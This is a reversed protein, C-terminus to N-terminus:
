KSARSPKRPAPKKAPAPKRIPARKKARGPPAANRAPKAPAKKAAAKTPKPKAKASAAAPKTPKRAVARGPGAAAKRATTPRAGAARGKSAARKTMKDIYEAADPTKCGTEGHDVQVKGIARAAELAATRLEDMSGGIAILANNMAHRTRNAAGHIGARIREILERAQDPALLRDMALISVVNWGAAAVHEARSEIWSRALEQAAASRAALGSIADTVIYNKAQELWAELERRQMAGADAVKTALVRADHIGSEWLSRALEQNVELRKVLAGLDAYSVGLTSDDAGHRRYLAATGAKGLRELTRMVSAFDMM